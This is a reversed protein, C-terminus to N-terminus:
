YLNETLWHIYDSIHNNRLFNSITVEHTWPQGSLEYSPLKMISIGLCKRLKEDSFKAFPNPQPEYLRQYWDFIDRKIWEANDYSVSITIKTIKTKM